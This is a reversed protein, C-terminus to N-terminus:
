FVKKTEKQPPSGNYVFWAGNPSNCCIGIIGSISLFTNTLCPFALFQELFRSNPSIHNTGLNPYEKLYGWAIGLMFNLHSSSRFDTSSLCIEQLEPPGGYIRIGPLPMRPAFKPDLIHWQAMTLLHIDRLYDFTALQSIGLSLPPRLPGLTFIM